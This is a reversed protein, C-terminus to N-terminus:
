NKGWWFQSVLSNLSNCLTKLLQFVSMYHIPIAHVVAKVLIDKGAQSLFKEKWGDFKHYVRSEIGAFTNKKSRVVL